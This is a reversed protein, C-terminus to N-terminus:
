LINMQQDQKSKAAHDYLYRNSVINFDKYLWQPMKRHKSDKEKCVPRHEPAAWHHSEHPLNSIIHYDLTTDPYTGKGFKSRENPPPRMPDMGPAITDLKSEHNIIHFPQERLIQIDAARNLHNVREREERVRQGTETSNDRYRQLIPDFLREQAKMQGLDIGVQKPRLINEDVVRRKEREYTRVDEAWSPKSAKLDDVSRALDSRM